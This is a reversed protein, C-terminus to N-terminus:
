IGGITQQYWSNKILDKFIVMRMGNDLVISFYMHSVTEIRWWEDDIRWRDEISKM